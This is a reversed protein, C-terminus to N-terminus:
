AVRRAWSRTFYPKPQDVAPRAHAVPQVVYGLRERRRDGRRHFEEAIHVAKTHTDPADILEDSFRWGEPDSRADLVALAGSGTVALALGLPHFFVRNAEQVYGQSRLDGPDMYKHM